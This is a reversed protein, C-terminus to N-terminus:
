RGPELFVLASALVVGQGLGEVGLGDDAGGGNYGWYLPVNHLFDVLEISEIWWGDVTESITNKDRRGMPLLPANNHIDANIGGTSM